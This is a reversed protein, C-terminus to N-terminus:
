AASALARFRIGRVGRDRAGRRRDVPFRDARAGGGRDLMDDLTRIPVEVAGHPRMGTSMRTPPGALLAHRRSLLPMRRAPMPRRPARWRSSGRQARERRLKAALDPQPEVLVGTWGAQELAVPRRVTRRTTRASMSSSAAPDAGFFEAKLREEAEDPFVRMLKDCPEDADADQGVQRSRAVM